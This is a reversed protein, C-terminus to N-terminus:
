KQALQQMLSPPGESLRPEGKPIFVGGIRELLIQANMESGAGGAAQMKPFNELLIEAM